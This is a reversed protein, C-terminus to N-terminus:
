LHCKENCHHAFTGYCGNKANYYGEAVPTTQNSIGPFVPNDYTATKTAVNAVAQKKAARQHDAVCDAPNDNKLIHRLDCDADNDTHVNTNCTHTM